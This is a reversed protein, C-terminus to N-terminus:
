RSHTDNVAKRVRAYVREVGGIDWESCVHGIRSPYHEDSPSSSPV